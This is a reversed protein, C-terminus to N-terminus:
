LIGLRALFRDVYSPNPEQDRALEGRAPGGDVDGVLVVPDDQTLWRDPDLFRMKTFRTGGFSTCM